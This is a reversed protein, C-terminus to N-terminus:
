MTGSRRLYGGNADLGFGPKGLMNNGPGTGGTGGTGGGPPPTSNNGYLNAPNFFGHGYSNQWDQNPGNQGYGNGAPPAPPQPPGGLGMHIRRDAMIKRKAALEPSVQAGLNAPSGFKFQDLPMGQPPAWGNPLDNMM